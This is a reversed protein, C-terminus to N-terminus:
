KLNRSTRATTATAFDSSASYEVDYYIYDGAVENWEINVSTEYSNTQKVGTVQAPAANVMVGFMMTAMLTTIILGLKKM